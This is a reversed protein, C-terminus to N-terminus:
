GEHTMKAVSLPATGNGMSAGQMVPIEPDSERTTKMPHIHLPNVTM